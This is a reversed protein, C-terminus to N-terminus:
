ENLLVKKTFVRALPFGTVFVTGLVILGAGFVTSVAVHEGLFLYGWLV